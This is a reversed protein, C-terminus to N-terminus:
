EKVKYEYVYLNVGEVANWIFSKNSENWKAYHPISQGDIRTNDIIIYPTDYSYEMVHNGDNSTVVFKEDSDFLAPYYYNEMDLNKASLQYDIGYFCGRKNRCIYNFRGDIDVALWKVDVGQMILDDGFYLKDNRDKGEVVFAYDGNNKIAVHKIKDSLPMMNVGDVMINNSYAAIWHQGNQSYKFDVTEMVGDLEYGTGDVVMLTNDMYNDYYLLYYHGDSTNYYRVNDSPKFELTTSKFNCKVTKEAYLAETPIPYTIDSADDVNYTSYGYVDGARYIFGDPFLDLVEDYPGLLRGIAHLYYKFQSEGKYTINRKEVYIYDPISYGAKLIRVGNMNKFPLEYNNMKACLVNDKSDRVIVFYRYNKTYVYNYADTVKTDFDLRFEGHKVYFNQIGNRDVVDIKGVYQKSLNKKNQATMALPLVILL